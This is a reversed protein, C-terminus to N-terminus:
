RGTKATSSRGSAARAAKRKKAAEAAEAYRQEMQRRLQISRQLDVNTLIKEGDEWQIEMKGSKISLVTFVGKENEYQEDVQFEFSQESGM